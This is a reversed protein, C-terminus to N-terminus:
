EGVYILKEIYERDQTIIPMEFDLVWGLDEVKICATGRRKYAPLDNWNVGKEEFMKNQLDKVNIGQLEKHRYLSQALMQISNREADKQRWLICNSVDEKPVNFARCDFDATFFRKCYLSYDIGCKNESMKSGVIDIFFKNFFRSAMSASVSCFKEVRNDFWASTDYTKYDVLVLTIEDSQTYGFVCNGVNECLSKMTMQMTEMFISDFPKEFGKTFTHGHCMDLRLIVPMRKLLKSNFIDEYAKMRDGLSDKVM